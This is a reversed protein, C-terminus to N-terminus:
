KGCSTKSGHSKHYAQCAECNGHRICNISYCPCKESNSEKM